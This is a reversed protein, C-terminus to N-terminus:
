AEATQEVLSRFRKGIQRWDYHSEVLSRGKQALRERLMPDRLLRLTQFAFEEAENAILIDEEPTVDLGEAGKATAVVPIGLAMAELIKLRTGGGVRLPVVCAWSSAVAHRVDELYGTLRVSRNGSLWALDMGGTRGTIYLTVGPRQRKIRPLVESVFFQMADANAYYTLSGNFVLRDPQPEAIGRRNHNLDVGNPIVQVRGTCAPIDDEVARRDKDSVMTCVDFQRYLWREYRCSKQWTMWRLARRLLDRQARYQEEMWSTMYNHEELMRPTGQVLLAYPAVEGVSAIVVNYRQQSAAKAVLHAMEPSHGSVVDRPRSSLYGLLVRRPDRWFPDRAVFDVRVGWAEVQPIFARDDAQPAFAILHVQHREAM